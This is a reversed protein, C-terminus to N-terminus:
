SQLLNVEEIFDSPRLKPDGKRVDKWIEAGVAYPPAKCKQLEARDIQCNLDIRGIDMLDEVVYDQYRGMDDDQLAFALSSEHLLDVTLRVSATTWQHCDVHPFFTTTRLPPDRPSKTSVDTSYIPICYREFQSPKACSAYYVIIENSWEEDGEEQLMESDSVLGVYRKCPFYRIADYAESGPPFHEAILTTSLAFAV